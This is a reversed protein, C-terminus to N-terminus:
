PNGMEYHSKIDSESIARKFVIMEDIAGDLCYNDGDEAGGIFISKTTPYISDQAATGVQVNNIYLALDAGDYTAAIHTWEGEYQRYDTSIYNQVGSDRGNNTARWRINNGSFYLGWSRYNGSSWWKSIIYQTGTLDDARVWGMVSLQSFTKITKQYPATVYTPNAKDFLGANKMPWRGETWTGNAIVGNLAERRYGKRGISLAINELTEGEGEEFDYYLICDEDAKLMSKHAIWRTYKGKMKSRSLLPFMIGMIVATITIVTLMEVITFCNKKKSNM